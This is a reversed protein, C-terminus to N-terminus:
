SRYNEQYHTHALRLILFQFKSFLFQILLIPINIIFNFCLLLSLLLLLLLLLLITIIITIIVVAVVVIITIIIIINIIIIVIINIFIVIIIVVAAIIITINIDKNRVNNVIKSNRYKCTVACKASTEDFANEKREDVTCTRPSCTELTLSFYFSKVSFIIM